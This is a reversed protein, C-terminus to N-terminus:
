MCRLRDRDCRSPPNKLVSWTAGVLERGDGTATISPVTSGPFFEAPNPPQFSERTTGFAHRIDAASARVQYRNCVAIM